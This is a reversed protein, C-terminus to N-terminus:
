INKCLYLNLNFFEITHGRGIMDYTKEDDLAIKDIDIEISRRKKILRLASDIMSLTRLGLFDMKLLGAEELYNMTYQSALGSGPTQYLPIYNELPGPAIVVGAAHLSSNRCLGELVLSYEILKIIKPDDSEKLWKLEANEIAEKLPQVRGFKVTIKETISNIVSLPVGLVRGVDKLVARSSLTGFTIIQAVADNGYKQRVYEIVKERETDSFDIDIDPMSVRDPNLFREFLLDYPLPDVNTIGLAYAVISGAASGRGPGVSVGMERAASIFDQVILFYGAYGMRTIVDLEFKTRENVVENANEGYRSTIGKWTIEDLYSDLNVAKSETPIPFNPLHLDNPLEVNCKEAVELTSYFADPFEGLMLKMEDVSKFYFEPTKYKLNTEIENGTLANKGSADRIHLLVNHAVAHEKKIYHVDNTAIIKLGFEKALIPAHHLINKDVDLYHNQIEIYFDDKFVDKYWGIAERALDIEERILHSSVVGGACASLAVLGKYNESLLQRDIRPKYYFGETHARSTLKCLNRYGELDKALLILHYYNRTKAKTNTAIKDFRSGVAMYVECGLIPKIGAKRAKTYFEMLGFTVGHDTLAVSNMNNDKTAKILADVSCAADLLSYHTHNHLHIFESM